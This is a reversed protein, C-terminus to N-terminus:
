YLFTLIQFSSKGRPQNEMRSQMLESQFLKETKEMLTKYKRKNKNMNIIAEKHNIEKLVKEKFYYENMDLHNVYLKYGSKNGKIKISLSLLKTTYFFQNRFM